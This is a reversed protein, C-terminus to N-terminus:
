FMRNSVLPITRCIGKRYFRLTEEPGKHNGFKKGDSSGDINNCPEQWHELVSDGNYTAFLGTKHTDLEGTYSTAIDGEHDYM